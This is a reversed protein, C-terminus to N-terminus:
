DQGSSLERDIVPGYSTPDAEYGPAFIQIGANQCFDRINEHLRSRTEEIDMATARVFYASDMYANLLYTVYVENLEDQLVFPEPSPVIGETAIAARILATYAQRWPVDYGLYVRARLILPREFEQAALNYNEISSGIIQSNPISIIINTPTLLRTVLLTTDVVQGFTEGIKIRDGLRFARTYILITGSVVNAIISTSGLSFLIGLFVSIGQFAPSSFGPLLPFVITAALAIALFTAIRYTPIAWEPYFGPLSITGDSLQRFFPKFFRLLFFTITIVLLIAILSPLYGIFANWGAAVVSFFSDRIQRALFRTWPFQELVFAAYFGTVGLYIGVQLLRSIFRVLDDLQNARILEFNGIYVPRIYFREWARLRAYLRDFLNGLIFLLALLFVTAIAAAIAGQILSGTSQRKRYEEVAARITAAYQNALKLRTKGTDSADKDSLALLPYDGVAISTLPIGDSESTFVEIEATALDPDDAYEQLRKAIRAARKEPSLGALPERISFLTQGHFIVPHGEPPADAPATGVLTLLTVIAAIAVISLWYISNRIREGSM